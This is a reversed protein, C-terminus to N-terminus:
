GVRFSLMSLSGAELGSVAESVPEGPHGAGAAYLLPLYHEPTPHARRGDASDVLSALAALDGAALATRVGSDFREAWDFPPGPPASGMLEAWRLLGLNHVANGSALILVGEDRLPRLSAARALHESASLGSDIRLQVVAIDAAPVVHALVSWTGHDLGWSLDLDVDAPALLGAVQEALAPSGPAPYRFRALEEPFGAFDHITRPTDTATVAAGPGYWHASVALIAAPRALETGLTRWASTWRNAELANMPNGHGVFLAPTRASAM